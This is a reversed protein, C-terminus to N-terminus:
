KIKNKVNNVSPRFIFLSRNLLERIAKTSSVCFLRLIDALNSACTAPDSHLTAELLSSRQYKVLNGHMKGEERTGKREGERPFYRSM